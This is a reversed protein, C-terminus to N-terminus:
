TGGETLAPPGCWLLCVATEWQVCSTTTRGEWGGRGREERVQAGMWCAISALGAVFGAMDRGDYVCEGFVRSVFPNAGPDCPSAAM